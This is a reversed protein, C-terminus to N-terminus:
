LKIMGHMPPYVPLSPGEGGGRKTPNKKQKKAGSGFDKLSVYKKGLNKKLIIDKVDKFVISINNTDVAVTFHHYVPKEAMRLMLTVIM